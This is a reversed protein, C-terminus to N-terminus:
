LKVSFALHKMYQAIQANNSDMYEYEDELFKLDCFMNYVYFINCLYLIFWAFIWYSFVLDFRLSKM